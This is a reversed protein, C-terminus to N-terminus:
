HPRAALREIRRVLGPLERLTKVTWLGDSAADSLEAQEHVWTPEHPVHIARSGAALVPLIDSRVSNGVMAFEGPSIDHDALIRRYTGEDKESVIEVRWFMEALGSRALKSEQDFLDGKTIVMLRYDKRLADVTERAGDMLEVPHSLMAKGHDILSQIDRAAVNGDTIEIATEIMSLVFGKIGYGFLALNRVETAQLREGIDDGVVYKQLLARFREQTISFLRENHWLTDDGDFAITTLSV